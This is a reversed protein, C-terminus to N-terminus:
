IMQKSKVQKCICSIYSINGLYSYFLRFLKESSYNMWFPSSECETYNLSRLSKNPQKKTPDKSCRGSDPEIRVWVKQGKQEMFDSNTPQNM